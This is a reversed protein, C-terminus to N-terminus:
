IKELIRELQIMQFLASGPVLKGGYNYAHYFHLPKDAWSRNSKKEKLRELLISDSLVRKTLAKEMKEQVRPPSEGFCSPNFNRGAAVLDEGLKKAEYGSLHLIERRRLNFENLFITYKDLAEGENAQNQLEERLRQIAGLKPKTVLYYFYGELSRFTGEELDLPTNLRAFHSLQRGEVSDSKSYVNILGETLHATALDAHTELLIKWIKSLNPRIPAQIHSIGMSLATEICNETGKGGPFSILVVSGDGGADQLAAELMRRNREPGAARGLKKWNAGVGVVPIGKETSYIGALSDTGPAEGHFLKLCTVSQFIRHGCLRDIIEDLASWIARADDFHRGGTIVINLKM